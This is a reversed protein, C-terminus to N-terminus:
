ISEFGELVYLINPLAMGNGHLKYEQLDSHKIDSCWWDPMGNLRGCEIPTLRRVMYNIDSPTSTDYKSVVVLEREVGSRLGCGKHYNSDITTAINDGSSNTIYTEVVIASYDTVRRNHDGIITPCVDGNGYGRADYIKAGKITKDIHIDPSNFKRWRDIQQLLATEFIKPLPHSRKESRKLVGICGQETLYYKLPVNVMLTQSLTYEEAVNPSEGTNLTLSEGLSQFSTQWYLEAQQGVKTLDLFLSKPCPYEASNKYFSESIKEEIPPSHAPSMKGYPSGQTYNIATKQKM